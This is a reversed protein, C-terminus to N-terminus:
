ICENTECVKPNIASIEKNNRSGLQRAWSGAVAEAEAWPDRTCIMYPPCYTDTHVHWHYQQNEKQPNTNNTTVTANEHTTTTTIGAQNSLSVQLHRNHHCESMVQCGLAKAKLPRSGYACICTHLYMFVHIASTNIYTLILVNENLCLAVTEKAEGLTSLCM